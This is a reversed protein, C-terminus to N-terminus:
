RPARQPPSRPEAIQIPAVNRDDTAERPKSRPPAAKNPACRFERGLVAFLVAAAVGVNSVHARAASRPWPQLQEHRLPSAAEESWLARPRARAERRAIM